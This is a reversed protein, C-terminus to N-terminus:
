TEGKHHMSKATSHVDRHRGRVLLVVGGLTGAMLVAAAGWAELRLGLWTPTPDARLFSLALIEASLLLLGTLANSGPVPFHKGALELLFLFVLTLAAGVLQVPIRNAIGGLEDSAPLAWWAESPLGYACSSIWCGLWATVMLTGALPFLVDALTATPIKKWRAVVFIAVAGGVLAGIGSLGGEWVQFVEGPNAQYYAFNVLVSGARSGILAGVLVWFGADLYASLEKQPARWCVLLLGTLTGVGLLVSTAHM